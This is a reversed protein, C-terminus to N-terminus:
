TALYNDIIFEKDSLFGRRDSFQKTPCLFERIRQFHLKNYM